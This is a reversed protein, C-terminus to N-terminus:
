EFAGFAPAKEPKDDPALRVRDRVLDRVRAEGGSGDLSNPSGDCDNDKFGDGDLRSWPSAAIEDSRPSDLRPPQELL